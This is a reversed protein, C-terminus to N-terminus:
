SLLAERAGRTHEQVFRPPIANGIMAAIREKGAAPAFQYDPPFSQLLAAERLTIARHQEPHLFRGRSPNHCGTTITPAPKDWAMRGYVDRFGTTKKHCPLQRSLALDTRSGGDLPISRILETVKQSRREPMDHLADGTNGPVPLDGIADRVTAVPRVIFSSLIPGDRSVLLVLRRRRQPVGYDAANLIRYGDDAPYGLEILGEILHTMRRDDALAPVNELLVAKPRLERVFRLYDYILDNREDLVDRTRNLTRLHSFGQCPPCGALLDLEGPRLRVSALLKSADLTRIDSNWLRVKPHNLVYSEGAARDFEVAGLVRFGGDQLGQTLGGAGSFLDFATM